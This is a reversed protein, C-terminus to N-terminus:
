RRWVLRDLAEMKERFGVDRKLEADVEDKWFEPHGPVSYKGPALEVHDDKRALDYTEQAPIGLAAQTLDFVMDKGDWVTSHHEGKLIRWPRDPLVLQALRLHFNVLWHCAGMVVYQMLRPVPGRRRSQWEGWPINVYQAPLTGRLSQKRWRGWTYQNLDRFLVDNLKKDGLHPMVKKTWHRKFDYHRMGEGSNLAPHAFRSDYHQMKM